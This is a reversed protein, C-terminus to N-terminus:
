NLSDSVNSMTAQYTVGPLSVGINIDTIVNNLDSLVITSQLYKTGITIGLIFTITLTIASFLLFIDSKSRKLRKAILFLPIKKSGIIKM